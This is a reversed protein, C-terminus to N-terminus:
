IALLSGAMPSIRRCHHRSASCGASSPRACRCGWRRHGAHRPETGRAERSRQEEVDISARESSTAPSAIASSAASCLRSTSFRPRGTREPRACGQEPRRLPWRRPPLPSRGRKRDSAATARGGACETGPGPAAAATAGRPRRHSAVPAARRRLRVCPRRAQKGAQAVFDACAEDRAPLTHRIQRPFRARGEKRQGQDLGIQPCQFPRAAIEQAAGTSIAGSVRTTCSRSPASARDCRIHAPCAPASCLARAAARPLLRIRISAPRLKPKARRRVIACAGAAIASSRMSQCTSFAKRKKRSAASVCTWRAVQALRDSASRRRGTCAASRTSPSRWGSPQAAM